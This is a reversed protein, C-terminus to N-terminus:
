SASAHHVVSEALEVKLSESRCINALLEYCLTMLEDVKAVIGKQVSPPPLCIPLQRLKGLSVFAQAGGRSNQKLEAALDEFYIKLFYPNTLNKDHIPIQKKNHIM